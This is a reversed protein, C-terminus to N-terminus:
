DAVEAMIQALYGRKARQESCRTHDATPTRARRSANKAIRPRALRGTAAPPNENGSPEATLRESPTTEALASAGSGPREDSARSPDHAEGAARASHAAFVGSAGQAKTARRM